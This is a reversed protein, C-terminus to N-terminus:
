SASGDAQGGNSGPQQRKLFEELEAVMTEPTPIDGAPETTADYRQELRRIYATVDQQKSVADTVKEKYAEAAVWLEELDVDTDVLSRLNTLLAYSVTSNPSSTLYHPSHGWMSANALNHKNCADMLVTNIGAPGQYGSDRIGLSEVKQALEPSSARGTIQPERTHPVADMLAGLSVVLQVGYKDAADVLIGSFARWRLNPETGIFLLLGNSDNEPAYYYFDNTPWHIERESQDSLRTEPRVTTFEYFEEPDIEAFKRAPLRRVLYKVAGTAAEAADPWDAFALVMTPLKQGPEEHVIMGDM